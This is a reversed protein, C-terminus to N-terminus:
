DADDDDDIAGPIRTSNSRRGNRNNSGTAGEGGRDNRTIRELRSRETELARASRILDLARSVTRSASSTAPFPLALRRLTEELNDLDLPRPPPVPTPTVLRHYVHSLTLIMVPERPPLHEMDASPRKPPYAFAPDSTLPTTETDINTTPLMPEHEESDFITETVPPIYLPDATNDPMANALSTEFSVTSLIIELVIITFDLWLLQAKSPTRGERFNSVDLRVRLTHNRVWASSIWYSQRGRQRVRRPM